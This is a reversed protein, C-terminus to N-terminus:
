PIIVFRKFKDEVNQTLGALQDALDGNYINKRPEDLEINFSLSLEEEDKDIKVILNSGNNLTSTIITSNSIALSLAFSTGIM